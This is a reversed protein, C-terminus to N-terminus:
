RVTKLLPISQQRTIIYYSGKPWSSAEINITERSLIGKWVVTGRLDCIFASEGLLPSPVRITLGTDFPNPFAKIEYGPKLVPLQRVGNIYLGLFASLNFLHLGQPNDIIPARVFRENTVYFNLMDVHTIAEIQFFFEDIDIKRKNGGSFNKGVFDYLLYLFPQGTRTYGTMVVIREDPLYSAGTILGKVEITDFARAVYRGPTNPLIYCTTKMSLWEKTFLVISDGMLIFAECDFDTNNTGSPATTDQHEYRFWITDPIITDRSTVNKPFRLIHLDDRLGTANNGVDAIYIFDKDQGIEEWDKNGPPKLLLSDQILGERDIGYVRTDTDDNHTWLLDRWWILGSTEELKEALDLSLDPAISTDRYVCSGDNIDASPDFNIALMDTCGSVQATIAGPNHSYLLATLIITFLSRMNHM